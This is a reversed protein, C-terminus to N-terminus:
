VALSEARLSPRRLHWDTLRQYAHAVRLVTHDEWPRGAIQLGIPLGLSTFGCPVSVTPFGLVSFFRTYRTIPGFGEAHRNATVPMTPSVLVDVSELVELARATMVRRLRQYQVYMPMTVLLGRLLARRQGPPYADYRRRLLPLHSMGAEGILVPSGYTAESLLPVEVRRVIAGGRALEQIAQDVGSRVEPDNTADEVFDRMVGVRIGRLGRALEGVLDPVPVDASSADRRDHGAIVSLV